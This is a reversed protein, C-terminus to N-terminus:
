RHRQRRGPLLPLGTLALQHDFGFIARVNYREAAALTLADTYSLAQDASQHLIQEAKRGDDTDGYLLRLHGSDRAEDLYDLWRAAAGAGLRYRFFTYCEAIVSQTTVRRVATPLDRYFTAAEAHLEDDADLLAIFAGTDILLSNRV